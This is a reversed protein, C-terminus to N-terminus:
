ESAPGPESGRAAAATRGEGQGQPFLTNMAFAIRISSLNRNLELARGFAAESEAWERNRALVIGKAAHAEALLPDLQLAKDAAPRMRAYAEDAAAGYQSVSVTAWADVFGRM